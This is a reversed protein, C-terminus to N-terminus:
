NSNSTTNDADHMGFACTKNIILVFVSQVGVESRQIL